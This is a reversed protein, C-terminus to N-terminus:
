AHRWGVPLGTTSGPYPWREYFADNLREAEPWNEVALANTIASVYSAKAGQTHRIEDLWKHEEPTLDDEEPPAGQWQALGWPDLTDYTPRPERDPGEGVAVHIHHTHPSTGRYPRVQFGDRRHIIQRNTIAYELDPHPHEALWSLLSRVDFEPPSHTLDM